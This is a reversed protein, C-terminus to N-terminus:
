KIIELKKIEIPLGLRKFMELVEKLDDPLVDSEIAEDITSDTAFKEVFEQSQIIEEIDEDFMDLFIYSCIRASIEAVTEAMNQNKEFFAKNEMLAKKASDNIRKDFEEGTFTKTKKKLKEDIFKNMEDRNAM